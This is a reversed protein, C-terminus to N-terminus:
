TIVGGQGVVGPASLGTWARTERTPFAFDQAMVGVITFQRDDLQVIQGIVDPSAGFRSQWLGFSLLIVDSTGRVGENAAFLRGIHPKVALMPFLSPTVPTVRLREPDGRGVLTMSSTGFWGGIADITTPRDAWARYTGNFVTGRVRGSRGQRTESVRILRDSDAWPLPRLLVGNVVSFLTTTAGIGLAITLIAVIAFGPERRLLRVGHRADQVIGALLSVGGAPREVYSPRQPRRRLAPATQRWEALLVEVDREAEDHSRGEARATEYAGAAHQSLEELVDDDLPRGDVSCTERIRVKWDM